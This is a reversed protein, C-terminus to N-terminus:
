LRCFASYDPPSFCSIERLLHETQGQLYRSHGMATIVCCQLKGMGRRLTAKTPNSSAELPM